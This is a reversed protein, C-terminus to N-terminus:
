GVLVAVRNVPNAGYGQPNWNAAVIPQAKGTSDTARVWLEFYGDSPLTVNHTWRQWDYRNKPAALNARKWTQGFDISIDVAAM